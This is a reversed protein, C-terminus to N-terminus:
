KKSLNEEGNTEFVRQIHMALYGVETENVPKELTQSLQRCIKESIEFAAPCSERMLHNVDVSLHEGKLIRVAMYKIHSMLRDYSLSSVDIRAGTEAQVLEVCQRIMRATQMAQSVQMSELSSHIHLAIYGLEDDSFLIGTQELIIEGGRRAVQFEQPFLAKIDPTLPNSIPANKQIRQAAFAIHDAMPILISTDLKGFAKQAEQIIANAIGLYIPDIRRVLERPNGHDCKPALVYVTVDQPFNVREGPKKGFGVGKGMILNERNDEMHIALVSNHNLIKTIRHM